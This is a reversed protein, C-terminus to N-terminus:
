TEIPHNRSASTSNSLMRNVKASVAGGVDGFDVLGKGGRM